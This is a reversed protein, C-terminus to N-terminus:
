KSAMKKGETGLTVKDDKSVVITKKQEYVDTRLRQGLDSQSFLSLLKKKEIEGGNGNITEVLWKAIDESSAKKASSKADDRVVKYGFQKALEKAAKIADSELGKIEKELKSIQEQKAKIDAQIDDVTRDKKATM